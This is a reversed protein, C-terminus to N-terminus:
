WEFHGMFHCYFGFNGDDYRAVIPLFIDALRKFTHLM